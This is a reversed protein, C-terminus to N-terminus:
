GKASASASQNPDWKECLIGFSLDSFRQVRVQFGMDQLAMKADDVFWFFEEEIAEATSEVGKARYEAVKSEKLSGTELMLDGFVARGRYKLHQCVERFFQKKEPETLHHVTYTSLIVDFVGIPGDFIQLIDEKMFRRNRFRSVKKKALDEMRESVDVCVLEECGPLRETLNGTGSGLEM